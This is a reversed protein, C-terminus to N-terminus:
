RVDKCDKIVEEIADRKLKENKRKGIEIGSKYFELEKLKNKM